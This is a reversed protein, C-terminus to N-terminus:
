FYTTASTSTGNDCTITVTWNRFEPIAPVMRLDYTSNASLAFGRNYNDTAYTCQSSVGSRDTISAKLGGLIVVWSVTPGLKPAPPAVPNGSVQTPPVPGPRPPLAPQGNTCASVLIHGGTGTQLAATEAQAITAGFGQSYGNGLNGGPSVMTAVAACGNKTQVVSGCNGATPMSNGCNTIAENRSLTQDPDVAVGTANTSQSYALSIWRDPAANAPTASGLGAAAIAGAALLLTAATIRRRGAPATNHPSSNATM